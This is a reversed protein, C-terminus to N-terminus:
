SWRVDVRVDRPPLAEGIAASEVGADGLRSLLEGAKEECVAILLGGSTQPDFLVRDISRPVTPDIRYRGQLHVRNRADAGTLVGRGALRAADPLLPVASAVVRLTVDSAEALECAHGILGGGTVDTAGRCGVAAMCAAAPANLAAMTRTVQEISKASLKGAKLATSLIGTGLPKTLVLRDGPVVESNPTCRGPHVLGTVALGFKLERDEVSHGGSLVAGAEHVKDMAGRLIEVLVEPGLEGAPFATIAQATIPRGGMAYVDSLSNAAAIQGFAYPDDVIPTFFDLTQM